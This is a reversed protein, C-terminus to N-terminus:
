HRKLHKNLEMTLHLLGFWRRRILFYLLTQKKSLTRSYSSEEFKPHKAFFDEVLKKQIPSHPDIQNVRTTAVILQHHFAVYELQKEFRAYVGQQKYYDEVDEIAEIIELNRECNNSNMTSGMRQVYCYLAKNQYVVKKAYLYLKSIARLDEYWVGEPFRVGSELFLEKRFVKNWPAPLEFLLEPDHDLNIPNDCHSGRLYDLQKGDGNVQFADFILIDADQCLFASLQDLAEPLLYDDSDMFYLFDGNAQDIGTNRASGQGGNQQHIVRIKDPYQCQYGHMVDLSHDTSGDDVLIIEYDKWSTNLLSDVCKSLYKETNYIPVIISLLM